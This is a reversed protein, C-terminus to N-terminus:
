WCWIAFNMSRFILSRTQQNDSTFWISRQPLGWIRWQQKCGHIKKQNSRSINHDNSCDLKERCGKLRDFAAQLTEHRDKPHKKQKGSISIPSVAPTFPRCPIGVSPVQKWRQYIWPDSYAWNESKYKRWSKYVQKIIPWTIARATEKCEFLEYDAVRVNTSGHM